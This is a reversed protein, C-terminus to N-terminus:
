HTFAPANEHRTKQASATFERRGIGQSELRNSGKLGSAGVPTMTFYIVGPLTHRNVAFAVSIRSKPCFPVFHPAYACTFPM